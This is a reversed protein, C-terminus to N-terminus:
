GCKVLKVQGPRSWAVRGVLTFSSLPTSIGECSLRLFQRRLICSAVCLLYMYSLEEQDLTTHVLTPHTCWGREYAKTCRHAMKDWGESTVGGTHTARQDAWGAKPVEPLGEVVHCSRNSLCPSFSVFYSLGCVYYPFLVEFRLIENSRSCEFKTWQVLYLLFTHNLIFLKVVCCIYLCATCIKIVFLHYKSSSIM